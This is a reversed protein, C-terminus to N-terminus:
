CREVKWYAVPIVTLIFIMSILTGFFIVTGMPMWLGSGGLIMPVVGMSAAASTLFIPRMRRKASLCIADRVGMRQEKRLEEAYDIMIIGNRVLIGMLSILGMMCTVSFDTGMILIGLAAGFLCLTLCALLLLATTIRKFHCLLIFFIIVVAIAIGAIIDPMTDSAQEMEGGYDFRVDANQPSLKEVKAKLEEMMRMANANREVDAMVTITRIGNRRTLQGHQWEPKVDAVQRLPVQALGAAAPLLENRLDDVNASDANEGKIMVPIGYDGEWLTAVNIGNGYRMALTAEVAANSIGLRAAAKDDINIRAAALPEYLSTSVQRLLPMQRMYDAVTDACAVLSAMDSGSIRVEVPYVAESYGLQKFRVNADPFADRWKPAYEDLLEVTAENDTTNVIFQAFNTGGMVPAYSNSFRPSSCGKFSAVSVVRSDARLVRELSDAVVATSSVATGTPMYIEVAFQNREATPMMQQPLLSMIWVGLGVSIVGGCIVTRPRAFCWDALRNYSRQLVDLFSFSKKTGNDPKAELPKRIFFYQMFPVVLEAVLLSIGLVITIAWPFSQLFDAVMGRTTFLFPFFTVSIALTASFISKFFHTASVISAHWRSRGEGLMEVYSDIIVISNDVIMGLTVILAALTVTNLEIGFVYFLSLSVFITIPITSAAVLAVRMPMLLMVVVVVAVVAILLEHLFSKVSDDVVKSQDTIKFVKVEAPLSSEFTEMVENVKEGMLVINKGKKMEVSLLLCKSGNNTIYSDADPYERVVRAVDKLRVVNGSPDSYVIMESVDYVSNMSQQVYVPMVYSDGKLRGATTAFGNAFLNAALSKENIGYRALRNNDVYVSIQERQMGYVSMRGVEEITRFRDKLEDMYDNLERYTKEDSSMSILLASTDGFDDMVQIAMVGTPLESKFSAVGHRFKSWFEDKNQLEDNLYVQMIAMGDKCVTQTKSKKVEKYSFVYDELPKAVREEIEEASAGPYVAVVIGQRITFDPFENKKMEGLGYIGFAMLCCVVLIVIGKYHMAWEVINLRKM